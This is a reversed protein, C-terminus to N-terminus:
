TVAYSRRMLSQLESTHEESRAAAHRSAGHFQEAETSEGLATTSSQGASIAMSVADFYGTGVERQHRVATYGDKQAAFERQQVESYAAMGRDRYGHALEFMSLNLTHFGALTVFQFKYGM